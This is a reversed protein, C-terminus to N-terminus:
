CCVVQKLSHWWGVAGIQRGPCSLNFTSLAATLAPSEQSGPASALVQKRDSVEWRRVVQAAERHLGGIAEAAIM